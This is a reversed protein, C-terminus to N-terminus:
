KAFITSCLTSAGAHFWLWIAFPRATEGSKPDPLTQTLEGDSQAPFLPQFYVQQRTEFKAFTTTVDIESASAINALGDTRDDFSEKHNIPQLASLSTVRIDGDGATLYWSKLATFKALDKRTGQM